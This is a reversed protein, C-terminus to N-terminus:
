ARGPWFYRLSTDAIMGKFDIQNKEAADRRSPGLFPSFAIRASGQTILLIPFDASLHFPCELHLSCCSHHCLCLFTWPLYLSPDPFSSLLQSTQCAQAGAAAWVRGAATSGTRPAKLHATNCKTPRFGAAEGKFRMSKFFFFFFSFLLWNSGLTTKMKEQINEVERWCHQWNRPSSDM